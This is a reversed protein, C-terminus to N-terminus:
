WIEPNNLADVCSCPGAFPAIQGGDLAQGIWGHPMSLPLPAPVVVEKVPEFGVRGYYAPDGYTMAVDVGEARLAGLARRLLTQGLGKRQWQPAVAMPSLIFVVRKDSAFSLRSFLAAARLEGGERDLFVRLDAPSTTSLLKQAMAGVVAGEAAGESAAFTTEFLATIAVDQGHPDNSAM